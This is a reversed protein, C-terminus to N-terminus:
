PTLYYYTFTKPGSPAPVVAGISQGNISYKLVMTYTNGTVYKLGNSTAMSTTFGIDQTTYNSYAITNVSDVWGTVADAPLQVQLYYKYIDAIYTGISPYGPSGAKQLYVIKQDTPYPSPVPVTATFPGHITPARQYESKFDAIVKERNSLSITSGENVIFNNGMLQRTLDDSNIQPTEKMASSENEPSRTPNLEDQNSCSIVSLFVASLFILKKM